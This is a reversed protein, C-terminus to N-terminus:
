KLNEFFNECIGIRKEEYEDKSNEKQSIKQTQEPLLFGGGFRLIEHKKCESRQRVSL